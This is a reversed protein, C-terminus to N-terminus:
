RHIQRSRTRAMKKKLVIQCKFSIENLLNIAKDVDGKRFYGSLLAIYTENNLEIEMEIMKNFLESNDDFEDAICNKSILSHLM